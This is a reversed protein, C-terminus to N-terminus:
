HALSEIRNFIKTKEFKTVKESEFINKADAM